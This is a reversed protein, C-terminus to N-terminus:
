REHRRTPQGGAAKVPPLLAAAASRRLHSIRGRSVTPDSRTFRLAPYRRRALALHEDREEPTWRRARAVETLEVLRDAM